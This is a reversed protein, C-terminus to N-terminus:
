RELDGEPFLIEKGPSTSCWCSATTGTTAVLLVTLPLPNELRLPVTFPSSADSLPSWNILVRLERTDRRGVDWFFVAASVVVRWAKSPKLRDSRIGSPRLARSPRSSRSRDVTGLTSWNLQRSLTMHSIAEGRPFAPPPSPFKRSSPTCVKCCILLEGM